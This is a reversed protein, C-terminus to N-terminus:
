RINYLTSYCNYVNFIIRLDVYKVINLSMALGFGEYLIFITQILIQLGNWTLWYLFAKNEYVRLFELNCAFM